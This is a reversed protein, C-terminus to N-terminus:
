EGFLLTYSGNGSDKFGIRDMFKILTPSSSDFTMGKSGSDKAVQIAKPLAELMSVVLRRKPVIDHPAFQVSLRCFEGEDLRVYFVPGLEDDVRFSLLGNGTL